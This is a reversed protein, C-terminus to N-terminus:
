VHGHMEHGYERIHQSAHKGCKAVSLHYLYHLCSSIIYLIIYPGGWNVYEIDNSGIVPFYNLFRTAMILGVLTLVDLYQQGQVIYLDNSISPVPTAKNTSRIM